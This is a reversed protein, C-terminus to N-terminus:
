RIKTYASGNIVIHTADIISYSEPPYQSDTYESWTVSGTIANGSAINTWNYTIKSGNYEFTGKYSNYQDVYIMDSGTFKFFFGAGSDGEWTGEFSYATAGGTIKKKNNDDKSCGTVAFGALVIFAFAMTLTLVKKMKREGGNKHVAFFRM